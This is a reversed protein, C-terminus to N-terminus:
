EVAAPWDLRDRRHATADHYKTCFANRHVDITASHSVHLANLCGLVLDCHQLLCSVAHLMQDGRSLIRSQGASNRKAHGNSSHLVLPSPECANTAAKSPSSSEFLLGAAPAATLSGTACRRRRHQFSKSQSLRVHPRGEFPEHPSLICRQLQLAFNFRSTLEGRGVHSAALVRRRARQNARM